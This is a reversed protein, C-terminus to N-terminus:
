IISHKEVVLLQETQPTVKVRDDLRYGMVWCIKEQDCLLMVRGRDKRPIKLDVYFDQLKKSGGLGIPRFRDGEQWPKVYLPWQLRGADVWITDSTKPFPGPDASPPVEKLHLHLEFSWFQYRGPANMTQSLDPGAPPLSEQISKSLILFEGEIVAQLGHPLQILKGPARHALLKFLAAIHVTYIGLLNGQLREAALRLLRRRLAPHLDLLPQRRLIIRSATETACVAQWQKALLETWFTEEEEVLRAHRCLAEIVRRHFHKELLPLIKQRVANRQHAPDLNSSDERFTLRQDRLYALIETRAAFLLPRILQTPTKPLMGAMGAPGTGRFLRLLLEEAQDNANHGLAIATAGLRAMADRFFRHRCVRAAMELSIRHRQRYSHVDASSVYFPLEFTEALAKVFARDAASAEDRLQHDFHLIAMRGIGCLEKIALLVHLLAVSDPGGSVAVLISDDAAILQEQHVYDLVRRQFPHVLKM